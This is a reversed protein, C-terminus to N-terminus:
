YVDLLSGYNKKIKDVSFGIRSNNNNKPQEAFNPKKAYDLLIGNLKEVIEEKTMNFYNEKKCLESYESTEKILTYEDSNIVDLKEPEEKYKNLEEVVSDYSGMMEDYKSEEDKTMYVPTVIEREGVLAYENNEVVYSQRYCGGCWGNMIVYSDEPYVLTYYIDDDYMQNVLSDLAMIEENVSRKFDLTKGNATISYDVTCEISDNEFQDQNGVAENNELAMPKEEKGANEKDNLAEDILKKIVEVFENDVDYKIKNNEASFDELQIHAGEMGEQVEEGTEPNIGLCTCGVVEIDTLLLTATDIDYSMENVELEVSVKTGNKREIIEAADTYERPIAVKAYINTRGEVEDDPIMNAEDATFCGIQRELYIINGADDIEFDHSTFDRVGNEDECFNALLPKYALRKIAERAADDTVNSANRNVGTHFVLVNAYLTNKDEASEDIEFKAPVHVYLKEDDHEKSSFSQLKQESCFQYLDDLTLIKKKM